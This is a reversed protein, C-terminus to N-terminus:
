ENSSSVAQKEAIRKRFDSLFKRDDELVEENIDDRLILSEIKQEENHTLDPLSALVHYLIYTNEGAQIGLVARKQVTKFLRTYEDKEHSIRNSMIEDILPAATGDVVFRM